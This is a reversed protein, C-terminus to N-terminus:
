RRRNEPLLRNRKLLSLAAGCVLSPEGYMGFSGMVRSLMEGPTQQKKRTSQSRGAVYDMDEALQDTAAEM